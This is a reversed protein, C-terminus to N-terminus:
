QNAKNHKLPLLKMLSAWVNVLTSFLLMVTTKKECHPQFDSLILCCPVNVCIKLLLSYLSVHLAFLLSLTTKSIGVPIAIIQIPTRQINSTYFTTFIIFMIM